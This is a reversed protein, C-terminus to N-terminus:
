LLARPRVTAHGRGSLGESRGREGGLAGAEPWQASGGALVPARAAQPFPSRQPAAPGGRGPGGRLWPCSPGAPESHHKRLLAGGKLGVTGQGGAEGARPGKIETGLPAAAAARATFQMDAIVAVDQRLCARRQSTGWSAPVQGGRLESGLNEAQGRPQEGTLEWGLGWETGSPASAPTPSVPSAPGPGGWLGPDLPLLCVPFSPCCPSGRLAASAPSLLM